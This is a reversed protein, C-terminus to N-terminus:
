SIRHYHFVIYSYIGSLSALFDHVPSSFKSIVQKNVCSNLKTQGVTKPTEKRLIKKIPSVIIKQPMKVNKKEKLDDLKKENTNHKSTDHNEDYNHENSPVDNDSNSFSLRKCAGV